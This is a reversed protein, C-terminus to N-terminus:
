VWSRDPYSSNDCKGANGCRKFYRWRPAAWEITTFDWQYILFLGAIIAIIVPSTAIIKKLRGFKLGEEYKQMLLAVYIFWIFIEQGLDIIAIKGNQDMGCAAGFLGVGLM